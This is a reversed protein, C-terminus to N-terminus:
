PLHLLDIFLPALLIFLGCAVFGLFFWLATRRSGSPRTFFTVAAGILCRLGVAGAGFLIFVYSILGQGHALLIPIRM